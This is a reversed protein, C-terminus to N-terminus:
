RPEDVLRSRGARAILADLEAREIQQGARFVALIQLTNSIDQLPDAALLLLDADLGVAITGTREAWGLARAADRTATQLAELPSLGALTLLRLEEHLGAGPWPLGDTGALVLGGAQRFRLVFRQM